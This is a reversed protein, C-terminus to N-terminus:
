VRAPTGTSNSFQIRQVEYNGWRSKSGQQLVNKNREDYLITVEAVPQSSSPPTSLTAVADSAQKGNVAQTIREMLTLGGVGGDARLGHDAATVKAMDQVSLGGAVAAAGINQSALAGTNVRERLTLGGVGGDARLGHDAEDIAREMEQPAQVIPAVAAIMNSVTAQVLSGTTRGQIRNIEHESWRTKDKSFAQLLMQNRETYFSSQVRTAMNEMIDNLFAIAGNTVRQHLTLGTVGGDARLGHDAETIATMIQEPSQVIPLTPAVMNNNNTTTTAQLSYASSRGQLRNMEADMWRGKGAMWAQIVNQNRQQYVSSSSSSSASPSVSSSSSIRHIEEKGWRSKDAASAAQIVQNRQEYLTKPTSSSTTTSTTTAAAQAPSSSSYKAMMARKTDEVAKCKQESAKVVYEAMFQQYQHIKEVLEQKSLLLLDSSAPGADPGHTLHHIQAKLEQIEANKQDQAVKIARLKEEHAKVM